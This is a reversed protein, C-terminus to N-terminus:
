HRLCPKRCPLPKGAGRASESRLSGGRVRVRRSPRRPEGSKARERLSAGRALQATGRPSARDWEHGGNGIRGEVDFFVRCPKVRRGLRRVGRDHNGLPSGGKTAGERETKPPHEGPGKAQEEGQATTASRRHLVFVGSGRNRG